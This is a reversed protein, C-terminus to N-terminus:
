GADAEGADETTGADPTGADPTGADTTTAGGDIPAPMANSCYCEQDAGCAAGATNRCTSGSVCDTDAACNPWCLRGGGTLLELCGYGPACDSAATCTEVCFNAGDGFSVCLDGGAVDCVEAPTIAAPLPVVVDFGNLGIPTGDGGGGCGGIVCIGSQVRDTATGLFLCRGGGFPSFCESDDLCPEGVNYAPTDNYNGPICSGGNPEGGSVTGNPSCLYGPDSCTPNGGGEGVIQARTTEAGIQCGEFCASTGDGFAVVDCVEDAGDCEFGPFACGV